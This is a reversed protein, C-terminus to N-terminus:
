TSKCWHVYECITISSM